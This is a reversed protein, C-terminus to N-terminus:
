SGPVTCPALMAFTAACQRRLQDPFEHALCTHSTAAAQAYTAPQAANDITCLLNQVLSQPSNPPTANDQVHFGGTNDNNIRLSSSYYLWTIKKAAPHGAAGSTKKPKTKPVSCRELRCYSNSCPQFLTSNPRCSSAGAAVSIALAAKRGAATAPVINPQLFTCEDPCSLM